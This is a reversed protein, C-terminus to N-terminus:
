WLNNPTKLDFIKIVGKFEKDLTIKTVIRNKYFLPVNALNIICAANKKCSDFLIIASYGDQTQFKIFNSSNPEYNVSPILVVIKNGSHTTNREIFFNIKSVDHSEIILKNNEELYKYKYIGESYPIKKLNVDMLYKKYNKVERFEVSAFFDSNKEKKLIIHNGIVALPHYNNLLHKFLQEQRIYDPVGDQISSSNTNLTIFKINNDQIYKITQAQDKASSGEFIANYFPPKQNLLVYFASNGTPFSFIKGNFNPQQKILNVIKVYHLNNTSFIKLNNEFCTNSALHSINESVHSLNVAPKEISIGYIITIITVLSIYIVRKNRNNKILISVIENVLFMLLLLSIFAIQGDISRIISKYELVLIDFILIIQFYSSLTLKSKFFFVKLFNFFIAFSLISITFINAPSNIFTFFPTKAVLVIRGVDRFYDFFQYISGYYILFLFLPIIGILFGLGIYSVDRAFYKRKAKFGANFAYIFIFSLILYIGIDTIFSFFLALIAGLFFLAKGRIKASSYLIYSFLLSILALIGYRSFTQFGILKFVFLYLIIFSSYLVLKEKIIKKFLFFAVTFLIPSILFYLLALLANYNKFYSFLGYPYFIDRYPLLNNLSTYNWLLFEQLDLNYYSLYGSCIDVAFPASLFFSLIFVVFLDKNRGLPRLSHKM